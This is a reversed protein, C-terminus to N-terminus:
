SLAGPSLIRIGNANVISFKTLTDANCWPFMLRLPQWSIDFHFLEPYKSEFVIFHPRVNIPFRCEVVGKADSFYEFVLRIFDASIKDVEYNPAIADIDGLGSIGRDFHKWFILDPHKKTLEGFLLLLLDCFQM